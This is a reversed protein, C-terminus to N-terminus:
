KLNTVVFNVIAYALIAVVIGIISYLITNKASEVRKSDGASIVYQLGGWILMIVAVAGVLFILVNAINGLVGGAGGCVGTTADKAGFLCSPTSNPQSASAGEGATLALAPTAYLMTALPIIIRNIKQM